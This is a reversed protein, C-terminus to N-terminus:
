IGGQDRASPAFSTIGASASTEELTSTAAYLSPRLPLSPLPLRRRM